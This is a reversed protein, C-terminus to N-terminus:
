IVGGLFQGLFYSIIFFFALTVALSGPITAFAERADGKKITSVIVNSLVSTATLTIMAFILFDNYALGGGVGFSFAFGSQAMVNSDIDAVQSLKSVVKM